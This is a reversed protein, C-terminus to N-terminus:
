KCQKAGPNEGAYNYFLSGHAIKDVVENFNGKNLVPCGNSRWVGGQRASAPPVAHNGESHVVVSRVCSNDNMGEEQGHLMMSKGHKGEYFGGTLHFGSPTSNSGINNCFYNAYGNQDPDNRGNTTYHRIVDGTRLDIVFLRKERSSKTFDVITIYRPNRLVDKHEQYYAMANKFAQPDVGSVAIRDMTAKELRPRPHVLEANVLREKDTWCREIQIGDVVKRDSATVQYGIPPSQAPNSGELWECYEDDVGPGREVTEQVREIVDVITDDGTDVPPPAVIAAPLPAGTPAKYRLDAPIKLGRADAVAQLEQSVPSVAKGFPTPISPHNDPWALSFRRGTINKENWDLAQQALAPNTVKCYRNWDSESFEIIPASYIQDGYRLNRREVILGQPRRRGPDRNFDCVIAQQGEYSLVYTHARKDQGTSLEVLQGVGLDTTGVKLSPAAPTDPSETFARRTEAAVAASEESSVPREPRTKPRISSTPALSSESASDEGMGATSETSTVALPAKGNTKLALTENSPRKTPRTVPHQDMAPIVSYILQDGSSEVDPCHENLLAEPFRVIYTTMNNDDPTTPNGDSHVSRQTVVGQSGPPLACESKINRPSKGATTGASLEVVDNVVYRNGALTLVPESVRATPRQLQKGSPNEDDIWIQYKGDVGTSQSCNKAWDQPTFEVLARGEPSRQRVVGQAGAPFDCRGAAIMRDPHIYGRVSEQAIEVIEEVKYDARDRAMKLDFDSIPTGITDPRSGAPPTATRATTSTAEEAISGIGDGPTGAGAVGAEADAADEGMAAGGGTASGAARPLTSAENMLNRRVNVQTQYSIHECADRVIYDPESTQSPDRCITDLDARLKNWEDAGIKEYVLDLSSNTGVRTNKYCWATSASRHCIPTGDPKVGFILPNCIDGSACRFGAYESVGCTRSGAPVPVGGGICKFRGDAYARDILNWFEFSHASRKSNGLKALSKALENLYANRSTKNLKKLQEYTLVYSRTSSEIGRANKKGRAQAYGELSSLLCTAIAFPLVFNM